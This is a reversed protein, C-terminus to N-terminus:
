IFPKAISYMIDGFGWFLTGCVGCFSIYRNRKKEIYISLNREINGLAESDNYVRRKVINVVSEKLDSDMFLFYFSIMVTVAGGRGADAPNNTIFLAVLLGFICFLLGVILAFLPM